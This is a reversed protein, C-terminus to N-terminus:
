KEEKHKAYMDELCRIRIDILDLKKTQEKLENYILVLIARLRDNSSQDYHEENFINELDRKSDNTEVTPM